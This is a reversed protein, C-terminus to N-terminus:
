RSPMRLLSPHPGPKGPRGGHRAKRRRHDNYVVRLRLVAGAILAMWLAVALLLILLAVVHRM